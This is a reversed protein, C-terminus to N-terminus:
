AVSNFVCEVGSVGTHWQESDFPWCQAAMVANHQVAKTFLISRALTNLRELTNTYWM